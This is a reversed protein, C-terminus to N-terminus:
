EVNSIASSESELCWLNVRHVINLLGDCLGRITDSDVFHERVTQNQIDFLARIATRNKRVTLNM